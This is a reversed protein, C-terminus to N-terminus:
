RGRSWGEARKVRVLLSVGTYVCFGIPDSGFLRLLRAFGVRPKDDNAMLAPYLRAVETVGADQRRRVRALRPLGEALWFYYTAPVGIRESPAFQLRVFTDDSIIQPFQDWRKRGEANVAYVGCGPVGDTIFPVNSWFRGYARTTWSRARAVIPRGGAYAAEPRDLASRLQGLLPPSVIVDADIYARITGRAARDAENLANLKCGKEISLVTLRVGRAAADAEYRRAVAETADTCGNAAVIIEMVQEQGQGRPEPFADRELIDSALLAELCKGIYAEENNAPIIVSLM